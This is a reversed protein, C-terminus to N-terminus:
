LNILIYIYIYVNWNCYELCMAFNPLDVSVNELWNYLAHRRLRTVAVAVSCDAKRFEMEGEQATNVCDVAELIIM